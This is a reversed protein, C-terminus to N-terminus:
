VQSHNFYRYFFNCFLAYIYIPFFSSIKRIECFGVSFRLVSNVCEKVMKEPAHQFLSSKAFLYSYIITKQNNQYTNNGSYFRAISTKSHRGNNTDQSMVLALTGDLKKSSTIQLNNPPTFAVVFALNKFGISIQQQHQHQQKISTNKVVQGVKM